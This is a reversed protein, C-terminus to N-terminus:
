SAIVVVRASIDGTGAYEVKMDGPTVPGTKNCPAPNMTPVIPGDPLTCTLTGVKVSIGQSVGPAPAPVPAGTSPRFTVTMNIMTYGADVKFAKTGAGSPPAFSHSENVLEKPMMMGGPMTSNTSNNNAGPTGPKNLCGTAAVLVILLVAFRM